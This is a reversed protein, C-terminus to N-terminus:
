TSRPTHPEEIEEHQVVNKEVMGVEAAFTTTPVWGASKRPTVEELMQDVQELSLGKMEPVLFYAFLFLLVCFAGWIFFVKPGLNASSSDTGVLYPTITAIVLNWLWCSATSLAVGRSRIPLPFAEGVVVWAAPGWTAAFVFIDLCIIAIMAKVAAPNHAEARGASIGIAAIVWQMLAMGIAGYILLVRRGFREITWFSIPTAVVNVLSTILSIFFPNDITKLQQFFTTGFYFIFNVGALQQTMQVGMGLITRRINSSPKRWSGKFCAVWSQLYGQDPILHMEIELNAIIEALEGKIYESEVPQGRLTSLAKTAQDIRGKKVCYRPSEPLLFLGVALIIAWLFQIAVPIRYSGTDNRNQTAYVVCNALLLGITICMQYGAVLAGRVKRPAIEAMYLIVVASNFGVGLGAILRGMVMLVLQDTSAVQLVCGGCFIICGAIITLRRGIFDACDGAVIAGLFTGLSLISTMLSKDHASLSFEIDPDAPKMLEWDYKLGTYMEIYYPMGLVGSMWGIDYGFFIGGFAAFACILYAKFTVPAEIRSLDSTGQTPLVGAPM